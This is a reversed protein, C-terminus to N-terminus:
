RYRKAIAALKKDRKVGASKARARSIGIAIAQARPYKKTRMEEAIYKGALKRTKGTLKTKKTKTM